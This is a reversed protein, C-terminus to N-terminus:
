VCLRTGLHEGVTKAVLLFLCVKTHYDLLWM